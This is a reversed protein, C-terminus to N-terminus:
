PFLTHTPPLSLSFLSSGGFTQDVPVTHLALSFPFLPPFFASSVPITICTRAKYVFTQESFELFRHRRCHRHLHPSPSPQPSHSPSPKTATTKLRTLARHPSFIGRDRRTSTTVWCIGHHLFHVSVVLGDTWQRRGRCWAWYGDHRRSHM